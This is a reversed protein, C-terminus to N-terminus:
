VVVLDPDAPFWSPVQAQFEKRLVTLHGAGAALLVGGQATQGVGRLVQSATRNVLREKDQGARSWSVLGVVPVYGPLCSRRGPGPGGIVASSSKGTRITPAPGVPDTAAFRSARSPTRLRRMSRCTPM